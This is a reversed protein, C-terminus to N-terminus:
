EHSGENLAKIFEELKEQIQRVSKLEEALMVRRGTLLRMKAEDDGSMEELVEKIEKELRRAERNMVQQRLANATVKLM